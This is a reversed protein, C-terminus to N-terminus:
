TMRSSISFCNRKFEDVARHQFFEKLSDVSDFDFSSLSILDTEDFGDPSSLNRFKEQNELAKLKENVEYKVTLLTYSLDIRFDERKVVAIRGFHFSGDATKFNMRSLARAAGDSANVSNIIRKTM